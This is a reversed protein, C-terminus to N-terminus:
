SRRLDNHNLSSDLYSNEICVYYACDIFYTLLAVLCKLCQAETKIEVLIKFSM